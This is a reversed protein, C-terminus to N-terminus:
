SQWVAAQRTPYELAPLAGIALLLAEKWRAIKEHLKRTTNNITFVSNWLGSQKTRNGSVQIKAERVGVTGTKWYLIRSNNTVPTSASIYGESNISGNDFRSTHTAHSVLRFYNGPILNMAAQPTTEFQVSHDVKRRLM